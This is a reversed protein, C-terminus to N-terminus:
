GTNKEKFFIEFVAGNDNYSKMNGRLQRSMNSLLYNGLSGDKHKIKGEPLGNGNDKYYLLYGDDKSHLKITILLKKNPIRACKFSNTLLENLMIGLPTLTELNFVKEPLDLDFAPRELAESSITIHTCLTKIYDNLYVSQASSNDQKYMMEHITAISYIRNSMANISNRFSKEHEFDEFQL